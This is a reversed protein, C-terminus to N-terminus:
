EGDDGFALANRLWKIEVQAAALQEIHDKNEEDIIKRADALAKELEAVRAQLQEITQRTNEQLTRIGQLLVRSSWMSYNHCNTAGISCLGGNINNLCTFCSKPERM